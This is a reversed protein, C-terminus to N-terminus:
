TFILPCIKLQYVNDKNTHLNDRSANKRVSSAEEHKRVLVDHQRFLVDHEGSITNEIVTISGLPMTSAIGITCRASLVDHQYERDNERCSMNTPAYPFQAIIM